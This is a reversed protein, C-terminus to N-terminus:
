QCTGNLGNLGIPLIDPWSQNTVRPKPIATRTWFRAHDITSVTQHATPDGQYRRSQLPAVAATRVPREVPAAVAIPVNPLSLALMGWPIMFVYDGAFSVLLTYILLPVRLSGYDWAAWSQFSRKFARVWYWIFFLLPISGSALAFCLFSNHPMYAARGPIYTALQSEGVGLLPSDLYRQVVIPWLELRGTDEEARALYREAVTDFVGLVFLVWVLSVLLLLPVFGRKLVTRFAVVLSVAVAFLAGRSVSLGVVYLCGVAVAWAAIRLLGRRTQLGFLAWYVCCFGFWNGLANPNSFGGAVGGAAGARDALFGETRVSLFPVVSLGVLLIVMSFRHSFAPRLFLSQIIILALIWTVFYRIYDGLPSTGHLWCRSSFKLFPM